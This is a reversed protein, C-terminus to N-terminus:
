HDAILDDLEEGIPVHVALPPLDALTDIGLRELFYESTGYLGAGTEAETGIQEVLGRTLLTRVVGDVNVGRVASVRARTVPQKYAIVALTELAAQSLRATQGETVYRTILESCDSRSYFRWGAASERLEFGRGDATYEAALRELEAAVGAAPRGTAAAITDVPLPEDAIILLAEVAAGLTPAGLEPPLVIAQESLDITDPDAGGTGTGTGTADSGSPGADTLDLADDSM